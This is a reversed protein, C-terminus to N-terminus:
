GVKRKQSLSIIHHKNKFIWISSVILYLAIIVIRVGSCIYSIISLIMMILCILLNVFIHTRDYLTQEHLVFKVILYHALALVIYGIVTTYAAIIYGYKPLLILNLGINIITALITALSIYINKKRFFEINVYQTYVFQLMLAFVVPAVVYRSPLYEPGGFILVAEPGFIMLGMCFLTFVETYTKMAKKIEEKRDDIRDFLWPIWAQNLSTLLISAITSITYALSYLAADESGCISNIMIRDSSALLVGSLVHPILPIALKLAHKYYKASFSKGKVIIILWYIIDVLTVVAYNGLFRGLLKDTLIFVLIVQSGFSVITNIWTIILVNKYENYIRYKALLLQVAPYFLLYVFVIRIYLRDMGFLQEFWSARLEFLSYFVLTIVNGFLLSSSLYENMNENFDYKAVSVASYLDLTLVTALINIWSSINSFQGYEAQSMIRTFIPTTLFALGKVVINSMTYIVGIKLFSQSKKVTARGSENKM